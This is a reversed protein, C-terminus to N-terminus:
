EAQADASAETECAGAHAWPASAFDCKTLTTGDCGCVPMACADQSSSGCVPHAAAGCGATEYRRVQPAACVDADEIQADSADLTSQAICCPGHGGTCGCDAGHYLGYGTACSLTGESCVPVQQVDGACCCSSETVDAACSSGDAAAAEDSAEQSPGSDSGPTNSSSSCAAVLALSSALGVLSAITPLSTMDCSSAFAIGHRGSACRLTLARDRMIRSDAGACPPAREWTPAEKPHAAQPDADM